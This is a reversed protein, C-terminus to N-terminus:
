PEASEAVCVAAATDPTETVGWYRAPPEGDQHIVVCNHAVTQAYYNALHQGNDFEKYRTGSDLALFGKHYIVFNLADYHRHQSLTGGCSFMCYTDDKGTGSRMIIQGM